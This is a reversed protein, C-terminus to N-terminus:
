GNIPMEVKWTECWRHVKARNELDLLSYAKQPSVKDMTDFKEVLYGPSKNEIGEMLACFCVMNFVPMM